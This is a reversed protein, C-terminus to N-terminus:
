ISDTPLHILSTRSSVPLASPPPSEGMLRFPAAGHSAVFWYGLVGSAIVVIANRCIGVMWMCKTAVKQRTSPGCEEKEGLKVM